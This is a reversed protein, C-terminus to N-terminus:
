TTPQQNNVLNQEENSLQNLPLTGNIIEIAERLTIFEDPQVSDQNSNVVVQLNIPQATAAVPIVGISMLGIFILPNGTLKLQSLSNALS